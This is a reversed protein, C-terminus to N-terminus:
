PGVMAQTSTETGTPCKQFLPFHHVCQTLAARDVSPRAFLQLNPLGPTVHAHVRTLSPCPQAREASVMAASRPRM